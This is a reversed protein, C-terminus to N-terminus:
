NNGNLSKMKKDVYKLLAWQHGDDIGVFCVGIDYTSGPVVVEVRVVSALTVIPVRHSTADSKYFEAKYSEWGPADLEIKLLSGLEFKTKTEFLVGGASINKTVTDIKKEPSELKVKSLSYKEYRLVYEGPLRVYRRRESGKWRNETDNKM